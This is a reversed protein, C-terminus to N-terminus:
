RFYRGAHELIQAVGDEESTGTVEDCVRKVEEAANGMGIRWGASRFMPLDNWGDGLALIQEKKM